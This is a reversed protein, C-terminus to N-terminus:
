GAWLIPDLAAGLQIGMEQIWFECVLDYALLTAAIIGGAIWNLREKAHVMM